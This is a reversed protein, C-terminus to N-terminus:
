EGGGTLSDEVSSCGNRILWVNSFHWFHKMRRTEAWGTRAPSIFFAVPRPALPESPLRQIGLPGSLVTLGWWAEALRQNDLFDHTAPPVSTERESCDSSPGWFWTRAWSWLLQVGAARCGLLGNPWKCFCKASCINKNRAFFFTPVPRWVAQSRVVPPSTPAAAPPAAMHPRIPYLLGTRKEFPTQFLYKDRVANVHVTSGERVM